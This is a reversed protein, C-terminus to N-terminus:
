TAYQKCLLQISVSDSSCELLVAPDDAVSEVVDLLDSEEDPRPTDAPTAELAEDAAGTNTGEGEADVYVPLGNPPWPGM